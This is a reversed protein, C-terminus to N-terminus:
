IIFMQCESLIIGGYVTFYDFSWFTGTTLTYDFHRAEHAFEAAFQDASSAKIHIVGHIKRYILIFGVSILAGIAELFNFFIIFYRNKLLIQNFVQSKLAIWDYTFLFTQSKQISIKNLMNGFITFLYLFWTRKVTLLIKVFFIKFKMRGFNLTWVTIFFELRTLCKACFYFIM